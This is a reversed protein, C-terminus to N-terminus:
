PCAKTFTVADKEFWVKQGTTGAGDTILFINKADGVPATAYEGPQGVAPWLPVNNVLLVNTTSPVTLPGIRTTYANVNNCDPTAQGVAIWYTTGANIATGNAKTFAMNAHWGDAAVSVVAGQYLTHCSPNGASCTCSTNATFPSTFNCNTGQASCSPSLSLSLTTKQTCTAVCQGGASCTQSGGCTTCALGNNGCAGTSTGAVCVTGSCCGAGCSGTCQLGCGDSAGGCKGACNPVCGKCKGTVPDCGNMCAASSGWALCGGAPQQCTQMTTADLCQTDGPAPCQNTCCASTDFAACNGSCKLTGGNFGKSQCDQGVLDTGDCLEPPTVAGDGCTSGGAPVCTSGQCTYDDPCSGNSSCDFANNSSGRLWGVVSYKGLGQGANKLTVKGSGDVTINLPYSGDAAAHTVNQQIIFVQSTTVKRVIAIHGVTDAANKAFIIVDDPQPLQTTKGNELKLDFLPDPNKWYAVANGSCKLNQNYRTSYFRRAYEVCQYAIGNPTRLTAASGCGDDSPAGCKLTTPFDGQCSESCQHIGWTGGNSYAPVGRYEGVQKGCSEGSGVGDDIDFGSNDDVGAADGGTGGTGSTGSSGGVGVCEGAVCTQGSSCAPNCASVCQSAACVYGPRCAPVCPDAAGGGCAGAMLLALGVLMTLLIARTRRPPGGLGSRRRVTGNATKAMMNRNGEM